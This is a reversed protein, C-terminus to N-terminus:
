SMGKQLPTETPPICDAYELGKGVPCYINHQEFNRQNVQKMSIVM